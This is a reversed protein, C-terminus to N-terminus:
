NSGINSFTILHFLFNQVKTKVIQSTKLLFIEQYKKANLQLFITVNLFMLSSQSYLPVRSLLYEVDRRQGEYRLKIFIM